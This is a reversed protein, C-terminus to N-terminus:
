ETSSSIKVREPTPVSIVRQGAFAFAAAVPVAERDTTWGSTTPISHRFPCM